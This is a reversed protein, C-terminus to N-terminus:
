YIDGMQQLVCASDSVVEELNSLGTMDLSAVIQPNYRNDFYLQAIGSDGRYIMNKYILAVRKSFRQSVDDVVKINAEEAAAQIEGVLVAQKSGGGALFLEIRGKVKERMCAFFKHHLDESMFVHAIGTHILQGSEDYGRATLGLCPGLEATYLKKEDISHIKFQDWGVMEYDSEPFEVKEGIAYKKFLDLGQLTKLITIQWRNSLTAAPSETQAFAPNGDLDRPSTAPLFM